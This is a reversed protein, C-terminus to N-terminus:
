TTWNGSSGSIPTATATATTAPTPTFTATATPTVSTGNPETGWVLQGNLYLTVQNWAAYSTQSQSWSYDNAQNYNSWDSKNFRTQIDGSNGGIAISGAGTTFGIQLYTNATSTPSTIPTFSGTINSCGAHAYDCWFQQSQTGDETYWYRITLSSLSVSANSNNVIEFHPSPDNTSATTNADAYELVFSSAAFARTHTALLSLGLSALLLAFISLTIAVRRFPQPRWSSRTQFSMM